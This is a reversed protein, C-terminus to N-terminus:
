NYNKITKKDLSAIRNKSYQNPEDEGLFELFGGVVILAIPIMITVVLLLPLIIKFFLEKNKM